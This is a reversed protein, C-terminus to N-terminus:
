RYINFFGEAPHRLREYTEVPLFVVLSFEKTTNANEGSFSCFRTM